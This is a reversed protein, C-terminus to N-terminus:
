AKTIDLEFDSGSKKVSQRLGTARQYSSGEVKRYMRGVIDGDKKVLILDKNPPQVGLDKFRSDIEKNSPEKGPEGTIPLWQHRCNFGGATVLTNSTQGNNLQQIEKLSFVKGIISACFPRGPPPGIYRYRTIDASLGSMVNIQRFFTRINTNIITQGNRAISIQDAPIFFPSLTAATGSSSWRILSGFINDAESRARSAFVEANNAKLNTITQVQEDTLNVDVGAKNLSTKNQQIADAYAGALAESYGANFRTRISSKIAEERELLFSLKDTDAVTGDIIKTYIASLDGQVGALIEPLANAFKDGYFDNLDAM